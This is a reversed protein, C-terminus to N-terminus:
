SYTFREPASGVLVEKNPPDVFATVGPMKLAHEKFDDILTRRTEWCGKQTYEKIREPTALIM